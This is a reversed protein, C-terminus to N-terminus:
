GTAASPEAMPKGAYAPAPRMLIAQLRGTLWAIAPDDAAQPSTLITLDFGPVELPPEMVRLDMFSALKCCVRSPATIIADSGAVAAFAPMFQPMVAVIRRSRGLRQLVPDVAGISDAAPSVLVHGLACYRDLDLTEGILPNARRAAVLFREPYLLMQRGAAPSFSGIAVDIEGDRVGAEADARGLTRFVLRSAPALTTLTVLLEAGVQAILSDLASITFRRTSTAPDFGQGIRVARRVAALADRIPEALELSRPTPAVGAGRRVFLPDGFIQRLRGVAHSVASQTLGLDRAVASMNGSAMLADFVILLTM